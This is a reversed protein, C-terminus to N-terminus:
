ALQKGASRPICDRESVAKYSAKASTAVTLNKAVTQLEATIAAMRQYINKSM